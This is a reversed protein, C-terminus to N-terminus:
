ARHMGTSSEFLSLKDRFFWFRTWFGMPQAGIDPPVGHEYSMVRHSPNEPCAAFIYSFLRVQM